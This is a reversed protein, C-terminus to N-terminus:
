ALGKYTSRGHPLIYSQNDCSTKRIRGPAAVSLMVISLMFVSFMFVSLMIPKNAVSLM